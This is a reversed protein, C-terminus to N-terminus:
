VVPPTPTGKEKLFIGLLGALFAGGYMILQAGSDDVNIGAGVLASTIVAWSSPEKFRNALGILIKKM